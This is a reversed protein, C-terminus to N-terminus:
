EGRNKNTKIGMGQYSIVIAWFVWLWESSINSSSSLCGIVYGVMICMIGLAICMDTKNKCYKYKRYISLFLKIYFIIYMIFIIIGYGTLIEMWWNHINLIGKTDFIAYNDMWYEINGAGTGFGYTKFLFYFGNKILNLRIFDSGSNSALNFKLNREISLSINVMIGPTIAIIIFVVTLIIIINRFVKKNKMSFFVFSICAIILGLINARSSTKILLIISSIITSIYVLKGINKKSNMLCIYLIFISFLIFTAFDNTNYFMSVPYGSRAYRLARDLPLFIYNGTTVEYWAIINHVIIMLSFLRLVLLIDDTTRFYNAYIIICIFGLAIFYVAKVWSIYDKVWGLTFIAYILWFFFFQISYKNEQSYRLQIKGNRLVAQLFMLLLIIILIGRFLSLHFFGLNISFLNAGILSTIISAYTIKKLM